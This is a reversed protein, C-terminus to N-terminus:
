IDESDSGSSDSAAVPASARFCVQCYNVDDRITTGTVDAFVDKVTRGCVVKFANHRVGRHVTGTNTNIFIRGDVSKRPIWEVIAKEADEDDSEDDSKVDAVYGLIYMKM